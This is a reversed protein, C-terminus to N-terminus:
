GRLKERVSPRLLDFVPELYLEGAPRFRYRPVLLGLKVLDEIDHATIAKATDTPSASALLAERTFWRDLGDIKAVVRSVTAPDFGQVPAATSVLSHLAADTCWGEVAPLDQTRLLGLIWRLFVLPNTTLGALQDIAQWNGQDGLAQKVERPASELRRRVLEALDGAQLGRIEVNETVERNLNEVCCETRVHVLAICPRLELVRRLLSLIEDSDTGTLAQDLRRLLHGRVM